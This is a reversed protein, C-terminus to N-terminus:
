ANRASCPSPHYYKARTSPAVCRLVIYTQQHCNTKPNSHYHPLLSSSPLSFGFPQLLNTYHRQHYGQTQHVHNLCKKRYLSTLHLRSLSLIPPASFFDSGQALDQDAVEFVGGDLESRLQITTHNRFASSARRQLPLKFILVTVSQLRISDSLEDRRTSEASRVYPRRTMSRQLIPHQSLM